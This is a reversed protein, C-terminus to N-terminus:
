GASLKLLLALLAFFALAIVLEFALRSRPDKPAWRDLAYNLLGQRLVGGGGKRGQDTPVNQDSSANTM